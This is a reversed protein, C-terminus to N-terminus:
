VRILGAALHGVWVTGYALNLFLAAPGRFRSIALLWGLALGGLAVPPLIELGDTWGAVTVTWAAAGQMILLLFLMWLTGWAGRGIGASPPSVGVAGSGVM